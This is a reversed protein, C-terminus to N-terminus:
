SKIMFEIDGFIDRVVARTYSNIEDLTFKRLEKWEEDNGQFDTELRQLLTAQFKKNRKGISRIIDVFDVEQIANTM